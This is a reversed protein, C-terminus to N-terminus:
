TIQVVDLDMARRKRSIDLAFDGERWDSSHVLKIIELASRSGTPQENQMFYWNAVKPGKIIKAM